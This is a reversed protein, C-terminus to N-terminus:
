RRTSAWFPIGGGNEQEAVSELLFVHTSVNKFIKLVEIPTRIDSMMEIRVPAADYKGERALSRLTELDPVTKPTQSNKSM